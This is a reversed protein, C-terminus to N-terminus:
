YNGKTTQAAQAQLLGQKEKVAEAPHHFEEEDANKRQRTLITELPQSTNLRAMRKQRKLVQPDVATRKVAQTTDDSLIENM